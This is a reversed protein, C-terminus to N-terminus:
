GSQPGPGGPSSRQGLTDAVAFERGNGDTVYLYLRNVTGRFYGLLPDDLGPGHFFRWDAGTGSETGYGGDLLTFPTGNDCTRIMRGDGDYQCASPRDSLQPTTGPVRIYEATGTMRGLGDYYYFRQEALADVWLDRIEQSRSGDNNTTIVLSSPGLESRLFRALRNHAGPDKSM